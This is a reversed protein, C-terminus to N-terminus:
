RGRVQGGRVVRLACDGLLVAHFLKTRPQLVGVALTVSGPLYTEAHASAVAACVDVAADQGVTAEIVVRMCGCFQRAYEGAGPEGENAWGSVGDCVAQTAM